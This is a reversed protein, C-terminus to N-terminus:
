STEPNEQRTSKWTNSNREENDDLKSGIMSDFSKIFPVYDTIGGSFKPVVLKPLATRTQQTLLAKVADNQGMM